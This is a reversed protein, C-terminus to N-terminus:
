HGTTPSAKPRSVAPRRETAPPSPAATSAPTTVLYSPATWWTAIQEQADALSMQGQCVARHLANEVADKRKSEETQEPWLNDLENSGGLELSVLHDIVYGTSSPLDYEALVQRKEDETVARVTEAYGPTCVQQASETFVSGPTHVPAWLGDPYSAPPVLTVTGTLVSTTPPPATTAPPPSSTTPPRTTLTPIPPLSTSASSTANRCAGLVLVAGTFTLAVVPRRV